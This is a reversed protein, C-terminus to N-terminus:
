ANDSAVLVAPDHEYPVPTWFLGIINSQEWNEGSKSARNLELIARIFPKSTPGRSWDSLKIITHELLNGPTFHTNKM